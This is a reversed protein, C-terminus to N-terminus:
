VAHDYMILVRAMAHAHLFIAQPMNALEEKARSTLEQLLLHM